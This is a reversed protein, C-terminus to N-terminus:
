AAKIEEYTVEGVFGCMERLYTSSNEEITADETKINTAVCYSELTQGDKTVGAVKLVPIGLNRVSMAQVFTMYRLDIERSTDDIYLSFTHDGTMRIMSLRAAVGPVNDVVYINPQILAAFVLKCHNTLYESLRM